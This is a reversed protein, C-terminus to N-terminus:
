RVNNMSTTVPGIVRLVCREVFRRLAFRDFVGCVIVVFKLVDMM